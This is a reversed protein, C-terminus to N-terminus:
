QGFAVAPAVKISCLNLYAHIFSLFTNFIEVKKVGNLSQNKSSMQQAFIFRVISKFIKVM